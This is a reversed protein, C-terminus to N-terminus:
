FLAAMGGASRLSHHHYVVYMAWRIGTVVVQESLPKLVTQITTKSIGSNSHSTSSSSGEAVNQVGATEKFTASRPLDKPIM